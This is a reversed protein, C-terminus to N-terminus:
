RRQMIPDPNVLPEDVFVLAPDHPFGAALM